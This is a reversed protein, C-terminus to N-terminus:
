NKKESDECYCCLFLLSIGRMVILFTTISTVIIQVLVLSKKNEVFADLITEIIMWVLKEFTIILTTNFIDSDNFFDFFSLIQLDLIKFIIFGAMVINGWRERTLNNDIYYCISSIFTFISILILFKFAVSFFHFMANKTDKILKNADIFKSTWYIGFFISLIILASYFKLNKSYSFENLLKDTLIPNFGIICIQCYLQILFPVIKDARLVKEKFWNCKTTYYYCICASKQATKKRIYIYGCLTCIKTSYIESDNNKESKKKKNQLTSKDSKISIIEPDSPNRKIEEFESIKRETEYDKSKKDENEKKSENKTKNINKKIPIIYLFYFINFLGFFMFCIIAILKLIWKSAKDYSTFIKRCILIIFYSSIGSFSYFIAKEAKKINEEKEKEKEKEEKEKEEKEKEAIENDAQNENINYVYFYKFTFEKIAITSSGGVLFSLIIYSLILVVIELRTYNELLKDGVHFEFLLFLLLFWIISLLQFTINSCVFGFNKLVAIGISSTIMAVDIEPLERYSNIELNDFFNYNRPTKNLWLKFEEVIEDFLSNLIIISMQVCMLQIICFVFGFLYFICFCSYSKDTGMKGKYESPEEKLTLLNNWNHAKIVTEYINIMTEELGEKVNNYHIEDEEM